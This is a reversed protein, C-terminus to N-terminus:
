MGLLSACFEKTFAEKAPFDMATAYIEEVEFHIRRVQELADLAGGLLARKVREAYNVDERIKKMGGVDVFRRMRVQRHPYSCEEAPCVVFAVGSQCLFLGDLRDPLIPDHSLRVKLGKRVAEEGLAEMLYAASGKCDEIRLIHKAMAFYTDFGVEGRMGVSHILAPSSSFGEGNPVAQM